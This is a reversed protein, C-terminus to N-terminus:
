GSGNGHWGRPLAASNCRLASPASERHVSHGPRRRYWERRGHRLCGLPTHYATSSSSRPRAPRIIMRGRCYTLEVYSHPEKRGCWTKTLTSPRVFHKRFHKRSDRLSCFSSKPARPIEAVLFFHKKPKAPNGCRPFLAKQAKRSERLLSFSSKPAQPIGAVLSFQKKTSAPTGCANGFVNQGNRVKTSM